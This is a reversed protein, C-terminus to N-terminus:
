PEKEPFYHIFRGIDRIGSRLRLAEIRRSVDDTLDPEYLVTHAQALIKRPNRIFWGLGNDVVFRM